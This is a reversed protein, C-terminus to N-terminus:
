GRQDNSRCDAVAGAMTGYAPGYEEREKDFRRKIEQNYEAIKREEEKPKYEGALESDRWFTKGEERIIQLVQGGEVPHRTVTLRIAHVSYTTEGRFM